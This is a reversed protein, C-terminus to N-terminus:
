NLLSRALIQRQGLLYNLFAHDIARNREPRFLWGQKFRLAPVKELGYIFKDLEGSAVGERSFIRWIDDAKEVFQTYHLKWGNLHPFPNAPRPAAGVAYVILWEFNTLIGIYVGSNAAYNQTDFAFNQINIGPRKAECVFKPIASMRFLYDVRKNRGAENTKKEVVVERLPLAAQTKNGVDWGLSAFFPDLHESRLSAENYDKTVLQPHNAEFGSVLRKLEAKFAMLAATM